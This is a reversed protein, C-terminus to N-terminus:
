RCGCGAKRVPRPQSFPWAEGDAFVIEWERIDPQRVLRVGDKRAVERGQHLATAVGNRVRVTAGELLEDGITVNGVKNLRASM